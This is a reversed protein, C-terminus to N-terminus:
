RGPSLLSMVCVADTGRHVAGERCDHVCYSVSLLALLLPRLARLWTLVRWCPVADGVHVRHQQHVDRGARRYLKDRGPQRQLDGGPM